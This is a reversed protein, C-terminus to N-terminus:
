SKSINGRLGKTIPLRSKSRLNLLRTLGTDPSCVKGRIGEVAGLRIPFHLLQETPPTISGNMHVYFLWALTGVMMADRYPQSNSSPKGPKRITQIAAVYPLGSRYKTILVDVGGSVIMAAEIRDKERYRESVTPVMGPPRHDAFALEFQECEELETQAENESDMVSDGNGDARPSIAHVVQAGLRKLELEVTKRREDSLLLSHSLLVSQGSWVKYTKHKSTSDVDARGREHPVSTPVLLPTEPTAKELAAYFNRASRSLRRKLQVEDVNPAPTRGHENAAQLIAQEYPAEPVRHETKFCDDFWNAM